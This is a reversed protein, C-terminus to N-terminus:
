GFRLKSYVRHRVLYGHWKKPMNDGLTTSRQGAGQINICKSVVTATWNTQSCAPIIVTDGNTAMYCRGVDSELLLGCHLYYCAGTKGFLTSISPRFLLLQWKVIKPM